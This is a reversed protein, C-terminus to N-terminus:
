IFIYGIIVIASIKLYNAKTDSELILTFIKIIRKRDKKM